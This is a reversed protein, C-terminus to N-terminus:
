SHVFYHESLSGYFSSCPVDLFVLYWLAIAEPRCEMM